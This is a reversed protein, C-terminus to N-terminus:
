KIKESNYVFSKSIFLFDANKLPLHITSCKVDRFSNLLVYFYDIGKENITKNRKNKLYLPLM